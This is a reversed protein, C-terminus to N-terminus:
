KIRKSVTPRYMGKENKVLGSKELPPLLDMWPSHGFRAEMIDRLRYRIALMQWAHDLDKPKPPPKPAPKPKVRAARAAKSQEAVVRHINPLPKDDVKIREVVTHIEHKLHEGGAPPKIREM